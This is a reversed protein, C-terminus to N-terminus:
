IARRNTRLWARFTDVIRGAMEKDSNAYLIYVRELTKYRHKERNSNRYREKM